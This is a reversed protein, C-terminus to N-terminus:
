VSFRRRIKFDYPPIEKTDTEEKVDVVLAGQDLYAYGNEKLYDVMAPIYADADAEGKWM